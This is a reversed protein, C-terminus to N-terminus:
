DVDDELFGEAFDEYFNPTKQPAPPKPNQRGPNEPKFGSKQKGSREPIDVEETVRSGMGMREALKEMPLGMKKWTMFGVQEIIEDQDADPYQERYIKAIKEAEKVAKKEKLEPFKSFFKEGAKQGVEAQQMQTRVMGPLNAQMMKIAYEMTETHVKALMKPLAKEPETRLQDIEDDSFQFKEAYSDMYNQRLEQRQEDTLQEPQEEEEDDEQGEEEKEEESDTEEEEESTDETDTEVEDGSEEESEFTEEEADTDESTEQSEGQEGESVSEDSEFSDAIEAYDTADKSGADKGAPAGESAGESEAPILFRRTWDNIKM